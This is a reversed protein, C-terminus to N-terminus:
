SLPEPRQHEREEARLLAGVVKPDFQTDANSAVEELAEERTAARKYSRGATIVDLTAAALIVRAALPIEEHRLGEPYGEGDFREHHYKVAPIIPWLVRVHELINAGVTPHLRVLAHEEPTLLGPKKIVADPIAIKGVDHLLAGVFLEDLEQPPLELELGILRASEAVARMHAVTYPDKRRVSKVLAAVIESNHLPCLALCAERGNPV